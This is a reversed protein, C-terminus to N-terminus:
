AGSMEVQWRRVAEALRAESREMFFAELGRAAVRPQHPLVALLSLLLEAEVLEVRRREVCFRAHWRVAARGYRQPERAALLLTLQFADELDLRGLEAAAGLALTVSGSQLARLFPRASAGSRDFTPRRRASPLLNRAM